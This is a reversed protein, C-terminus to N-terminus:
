WRCWRQWVSVLDRRDGGDGGAQGPLTADGGRGGNGFLSLAGANGGSGGNAGNGGSGFFLGGDEGNCADGTCNAPANAGNGFLKFQTAGVGPLAAALANPAPPTLSSGILSCGYPFCTEDTLPALPVLVSDTSALQVEPSAVGPADPAAALLLGAGVM